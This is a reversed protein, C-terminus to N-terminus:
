LITCPLKSRALCKGNDTTHEKGQAKMVIQQPQDILDSLLLDPNYTEGWDHTEKAPHHNAQSSSASLKGLLEEAVKDKELNDNELAQIKQAYFQHLEQVESNKQNFKTKWETAEKFHIQYQASYDDELRQIEDDVRRQGQTTYDLKLEQIMTDKEQCRTEWVQQQLNAQQLERQLSAILNEHDHASPNHEPATPASIPLIVPLQSLHAIQQEEQRQLAVVPTTNERLNVLGSAGNTVSLQPSSSVIPPAKKATSVRPRKASRLPIHEVDKELRSSESQRKRRRPTTKKRQSSNNAVPPSESPIVATGQSQDTPLITPNECEDSDRRQRGVKGGKAFRVRRGDHVRPM